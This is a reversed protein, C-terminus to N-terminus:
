AAAAAVTTGSLVTTPKPSAGGMRTANSEAMTRLGEAAAEASDWLSVQLLRSADEDSRAGYLGRFGPQRRLAPILHEKIGPLVQSPPPAGETVRFVCHMATRSAGQGQQQPDATEHVAYEGALVEPPNPLLDRLNSVVWERVRDDARMATRRDDFVTVSVVVHGDESAFACYGRFGPTRRLLPVFGDRVPPVLGDILAAKDAYKRITVHM